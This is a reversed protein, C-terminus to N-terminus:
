LVVSFIYCHHNRCGQTIVGCHSCISLEGHEHEWLVGVGHTSIHKWSWQYWYIKSRKQFVHIQPGCNESSVIHYFNITVAKPIKFPFCIVSAYSLSLNHSWTHVTIVIASVFCECKPKKLELALRLVILLYNINLKFLLNWTM